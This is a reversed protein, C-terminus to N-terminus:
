FARAKIGSVYKEYQNLFTPISNPRPRHLKPHEVLSEVQSARKTTISSTDADSAQKCAAMDTESLRCHVRRTVFDSDMSWM